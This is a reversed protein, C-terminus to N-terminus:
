ETYFDITELLSKECVKCFEPFYNDRMRCTESPRFIGFKKYGAGEYAGIPMENVNLKSYYELPKEEVPTPIPTGPTVMDKWKSKFDVMTTINPEWPEVNYDYTADEIDQYNYEDALGGFSHGFEHVSVPLTFQNHAAAIQYNNFIGGGGYEDTNVIMLIYEYPIGELDQHMKIVKPSTLYRDSYFTSFHSGYRTDVWIDKKPISVGSEESPTMVAVINFKDKRSAFPEYSLIENSIETASALFSDMENETYGEALIALDISREPDKGKHIYRYPLPAHNIKKVLVDDPRYRHTSRAIENEKNDRIVINIDAEKKPLPVIFSNEFGQPSTLLEPYNLWEQFLTSFGNIYLTDGSEPETVIINGNGKLPLEKLRSHRGAWGKQKSQGLLFIHSENADGGFVYDVRLTSDSFSKYFESHNSASVYFSLVLSLILFVGRM